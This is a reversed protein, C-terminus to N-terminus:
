LQSKVPILIYSTFEIETMTYALDIRLAISLAEIWQNKVESDANTNEILVFLRHCLEVIAHYDDQRIKGELWKRIIIDHQNQSVSRLLIVRFIEADKKYIFFSRGAKYKEMDVYFVNKMLYSFHKTLYNRITEMDNEKQDLSKHKFYAFRRNMYVDDEM